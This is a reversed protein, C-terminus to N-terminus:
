TSMTVWIKSGKLTMWSSGLTKSEVNETSFNVKDDNQGFYLTLSMM